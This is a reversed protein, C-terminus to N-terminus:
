LWIFKVGSIFVAVALLLVLPKVPLSKTGLGTGIISGVFVLGAWLILEGPVNRVSAINGALGALSNFLIFAAAIGATQRAGAWGSIVFLPSLLVGGGIGSLGSALGIAGGSSVSGVLPLKRKSTEFRDHIMSVQWIMYGASIVLLAGLLPRYIDSPLTLTGGLFALPMSAAIIPLASKWDLYGAKTFKYTALGAVVVNLALAIPRIAEPELSFFALIAIYGSAGGHGVSSYLTAVFGLILGILIIDFMEM